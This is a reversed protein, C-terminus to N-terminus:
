HLNLAFKVYSLKLNWGNRIVELLLVSTENQNLKAAMSAWEVEIFLLKTNSTNTYSTSTFARTRADREANSLPRLRRREHLELALVVVVGPVSRARLACCM